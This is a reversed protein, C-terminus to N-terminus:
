PMSADEEYVNVCCQCGRNQGNVFAEEAAPHLAVADFFVSATILCDEYCLAKQAPTMNNCVAFLDDNFALDCGAKTKGCTQYCYDHNNCPLDTGPACEENDVSCGFAVEPCLVLPTDDVASCGDSSGGTDFGPRAVRTEPCMEYASGLHKESIEGTNRDCCQSESSYGLACADSSTGDDAIDIRCSECHTACGCVLEVAGIDFDLPRRTDRQVPRREPGLLDSRLVHDVLESLGLTRPDVGRDIGPSPLGQPSPLTLGFDDDITDPIEDHGPSDHYVGREIACEPSAAVGSAEAGTPTLNGAHSGAFVPGRIEGFSNGCLLNNWVSVTGGATKGEGRAIGYGEERLAAGNRTVANNAVVASRGGAIAIGNRDNHHITNQLIWQVNTTRAASKPLSIGHGRNAHIVNNV